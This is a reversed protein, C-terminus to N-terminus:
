DSSLNLSVTASNVVGALVALSQLSFDALNERKEFVLGYIQTIIEPMQGAKEIRYVRLLFALNKIFEPATNSDIESNLMLKGYDNTVM